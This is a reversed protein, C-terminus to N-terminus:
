SWGCCHRRPWYYRNLVLGDALSLSERRYGKTALLETPRLISYHTYAVSLLRFIPCCPFCLWAGTASFSTLGKWASREALWLPIIVAGFHGPFPQCNKKTQKILVFLFRDIFNPFKHLVASRLSFASWFLCHIHVTQCTHAQVPMHDMSAAYSVLDPVLSTIEIGSLRKAECATAIAVPKVSLLSMLRRSICSSLGTNSM